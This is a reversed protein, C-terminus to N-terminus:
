SGRPADPERRTVVQPRSGFVTDLYPNASPPPPALRKVAEEADLLEPSQQMEEFTRDGNEHDIRQRRRFIGM